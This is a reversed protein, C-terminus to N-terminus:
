AARRNQTDRRLQWVQQDPVRRDSGIGFALLWILGYAVAGGLIVNLILLTTHTM